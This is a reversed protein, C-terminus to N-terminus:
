INPRILTCNGLTVFQASSRMPVAAQRLDSESDIVHAATVLWLLGELRFFTGTGLLALKEDKECVLPVTCLRLFEKIAEAESESFGLKTIKHFKESM